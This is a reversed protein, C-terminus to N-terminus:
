DLANFLVVDVKPIELAKYPALIIVKFKKKIGLEQLFPQHRGSYKRFNM